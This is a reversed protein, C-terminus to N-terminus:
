CCAAHCFRRLILCLVALMLPVQACVSLTGSIDASVSRCGCPLHDLRRSENFATVTPVGGLRVGPTKGDAGKKVDGVGVVRFQSRGSRCERVAVAEQPWRERGKCGRTKGTMQPEAGGWLCLGEHMNTGRALQAHKDM